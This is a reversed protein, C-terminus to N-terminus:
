VSIIDFMDEDNEVQGKLRVKGYELQASLYTGHCSQIAYQVGVPIVRFKEWEGVHSNLKLHTGPSASLYRSHFTLM